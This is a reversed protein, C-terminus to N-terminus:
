TNEVISLGIPTWLDPFHEKVCWRIRPQNEEDVLGIAIECPGPHIGKPLDIHQEIWADGPLWTRIDIDNLRVIFDKDLQRFRIAVTYEHYIPAVGINEIWATFLFPSNQNILQSYCVQRLVFNYGLKLSFAALADLWPEPLRCSKPMFYTAHYKLGQKIIFDIDGGHEYWTMPVWCSELHVPGHQWAQQANAQCIAEPYADYMHNWSLHRPVEPSGPFASDGFCDCRWGSGRNIGETLQQGEILALCPTNTFATIWLSAFEACRKDSCNGAGEGWPGIFAIDITELAPNTDYRKAFERIFNGWHHLYEPSDHDPVIHTANGDGLKVCPYKTRYWDPIQTQTPSGYSMLRVALTQQRSIATELAQDIISFDYVGEEQEMTRWFWRCYSVTSPLYGDTTMQIEGPYIDTGTKQRSPEPFSTPGSENWTQGPYLPDGNFRQFTCCGKHPNLIGDEIATFRKRINKEM